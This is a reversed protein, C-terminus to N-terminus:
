FEGGVTNKKIIQLTKYKPKPIVESGGGVMRYGGGGGGWM